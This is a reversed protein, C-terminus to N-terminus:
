LTPAIFAIFFCIWIGSCAFPKKLLFTCYTHHEVTVFIDLFYFLDLFILSIWFLFGFFIWSIWFLDLSIDLYSFLLFGKNPLYKSRVKASATLTYRISLQLLVYLHICKVDRKAWSSSKKPFLRFPKVQFPSSWGGKESNTEM